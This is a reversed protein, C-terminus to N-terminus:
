APDLEQLFMSPQNFLLSESGSVLPYTYYLFKRARTTAVYFLRREEELGDREELARGNPFKGDVLNMIFVADWELGKAQHITSLILREEDGHTEEEMVGYDATLSVDTLFTTLDKYQEAFVAFQEIDECRDNFDPYEAELYTRYESSAVTRILEAPTTQTTFKKLTGVLTKWGASARAGSGISQEVLEELSEFGHIQSIMKQATALGVGTQLGLVRMWAVEDKLNVKIRLYMVLDKIHAREFFKLGGRYEYPIDRRMLELELMQSHFAARFLVAIERFPTGADRLTVIQQAIFQAEQPANAAPVLQPKESSARVAALNKKFQNKNNAISDNAISLIEPSSRY